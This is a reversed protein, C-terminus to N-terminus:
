NCRSCEYIPVKLATCSSEPRESIHWFQKSARTLTRPGPFCRITAVFFYDVGMAWTHFSWHAKYCIVTCSGVKFVTIAEALSSQQGGEILYFFFLFIFVIGCFWFVVDLSWKIGVFCEVFFHCTTSVLVHYAFHANEVGAKKPQMESAKSNGPQTDEKFGESYKEQRTRNRQQSWVSDLHKKRGM